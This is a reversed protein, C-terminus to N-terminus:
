RPIDARSRTRTRSLTIPPSLVVNIAACSSAGAPVDQDGNFVSTVARRAAADAYGAVAAKRQESPERRLDRGDLEVLEFACLVVDDDYGRGRLREFDALGDGDTAEGILCSRVPM